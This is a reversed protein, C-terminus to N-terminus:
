KTPCKREVYRILTENAHEDHEIVIGVSESPGEFRLIITEEGNAPTVVAEVYRGNVVNFVTVTYGEAARISVNNKDIHRVVVPTDAM